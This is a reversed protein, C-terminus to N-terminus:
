KVEKLGTVVDHPTIPTSLPRWGTAHFVANGVSAAVGITALESLGIGQGRVEEFGKEDYHLHINPTDGLGPLRYDNLNSSLTHGTQQDYVKEEYLAYGLGQIVGSYMQSNALDRVFIKGVAIGSWVNLPRIKGLRTDVEVETVIASHGIRMGIGPPVNIRLGLLGRENGRKDSASFPAAM